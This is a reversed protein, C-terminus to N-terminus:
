FDDASLGAGSIIKNLRSAASPKKSAASGTSSKKTGSSIETNTQVKLGSVITAIDEEDLLTVNAPDQKLKTHIDRLLTPMTPHATHIATQLEAIKSKLELVDPNFDLTM